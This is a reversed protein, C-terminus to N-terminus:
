RKALLADGRMVSQLLSAAGGTGALTLANRLRDANTDQADRVDKDEHSPWNGSVHLRM